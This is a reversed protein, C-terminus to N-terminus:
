GKFDEHPWEASGPETQAHCTMMECHKDPCCAARRPLVKRSFLLHPTQFASFTCLTQCLARGTGQFNATCESLALHMKVPDDQTQTCACSISTCARRM